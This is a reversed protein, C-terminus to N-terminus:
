LYVGWQQSIWKLDANWDEIAATMNTQIRGEALRAFTKIVKNLCRVRRRTCQKGWWVTREIGLLSLDSCAILELLQCRKKLTIQQRRAGEGVKYGFAGLIGMPNWKSAWAGLKSSQLQDRVNQLQIQNLSSTGGKLSDVIEEDDSRREDDGIMSEGDVLAAEWWLMVLQDKRLLPDAGANISDVLAELFTRFRSVQGQFVVKNKSAREFIALPDILISAQPLGLIKMVLNDYDPRWNGKSDIGASRSPALPRMGHPLMNMIVKYNSEISEPDIYATVSPYLIFKSM